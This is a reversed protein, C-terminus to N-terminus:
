IKLMNMLAARDEDNLSNNEELCDFACRGNNDLIDLRPNTTLFLKILRLGSATPIAHMLFTRGEWDQIDVDIGLPLLARLKKYCRGKRGYVEPMERAISFWYPMGGKERGNINAGKSSLFEMAKNDTNNQIAYGIPTIGFDDDPEDLPLGIELLTAIGETTVSSSAWSHLLSYKGKRPQISAGLEKWLRIMSPSTSPSLMNFPTVGYHNDAELNAGADVLLRLIAETTGYYAAVHIPMYNSCYINPDAGCSLFYRVADEDAAAVARYLLTYGEADFSNIDRGILKYDQYSECLKSAFYYLQNERYNSLTVEDNDIEDSM